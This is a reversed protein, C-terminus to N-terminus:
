RREIYIYISLCISISIYIYVSLSLPPVFYMFKSILIERDIDQSEEHRKFKIVSQTPTKNTKNYKM